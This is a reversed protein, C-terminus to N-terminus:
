QAAAETEGRAWERHLTTIKIKKRILGQQNATSPTRELGRRAGAEGAGTALRPGFGDSHFGTSSAPSAALTEDRERRQAVRRRGKRLRHRPSPANVQAVLNPILGAPLIGPPYVRPHNFGACLEAKCWALDQASSTQELTKRERTNTWILHFYGWHLKGFAIRWFLGRRRSNEVRSPINYSATTQSPSPCSQVWGPLQAEDWSRWCGGGRAIPTDQAHPKM